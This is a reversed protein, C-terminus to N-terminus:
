EVEKVNAGHILHVPNDGTLEGSQDDFTGVYFLSYDEPHRGFDSEPNRCADTFSRLAAGNSNAFIPNTWAEAKTDHISFAKLVTM